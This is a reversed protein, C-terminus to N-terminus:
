TESFILNHDFLKRRLSKKKAGAQYVRNEEQM